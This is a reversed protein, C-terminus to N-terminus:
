KLLRMLSEKDAQSVEEPEKTKVDKVSIKKVAPVEVNKAEQYEESFIESYIKSKKIEGIAKDVINFVKKQFHKGVVEKGMPIQGVLLIIPLFLRVM